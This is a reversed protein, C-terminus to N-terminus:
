HYDTKENCRNCFAAPSLPWCTIVQWVIQHTCSVIITWLCLLIENSSGPDTTLTTVLGMPHCRTDASVISCQASQARSKIPAAFCSAPICPPPSSATLPLPSPRYCIHFPYKRKIPHHTLPLTLNKILVVCRMSKYVRHVVPARSISFKREYPWGNTQGTWVLARWRWRELFDTLQWKHILWNYEDYRRLRFYNTKIIMKIPSLYLVM